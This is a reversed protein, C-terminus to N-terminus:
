SRLGIITSTKTFTLCQTGKIFHFTPGYKMEHNASFTPAAILSMSRLNLSNKKGRKRLANYKRETVDQLSSKNKFTQISIVGIVVKSPIM